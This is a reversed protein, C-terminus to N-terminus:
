RHEGPTPLVRLQVVAHNGANDLAVVRHEGPENFELITARGSLSTGVLRDDILWWIDGESGQATAEIRANRDGSGPAPRLTM